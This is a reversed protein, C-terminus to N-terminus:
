KGHNKNSHRVIKSFERDMQLHCAPCLAVLNTYNNNSPDNDIHAIQLFVQYAKFGAKKSEKIEDKNIIYKNGSKDWEYCIRHRVGCHQCIYKDRKLIAPRITDYWNAAYKHRNKM